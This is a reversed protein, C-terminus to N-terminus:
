FFSLSALDSDDGNMHFKWTYDRWRSTILLLTRDKSKIIIFRPTISVIVGEFGNVEVKRGICVFQNSRFDLYSFLSEAISRFLLVIFLVLIFKFSLILIKSDILSLLQNIQQTSM